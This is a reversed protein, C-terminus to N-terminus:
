QGGGLRALLQSLADRAEEEDADEDDDDDGDDDSNNNNNDGDDDAGFMAYDEDQKVRTNRASPDEGDGYEDGNGDSDVPDASDLEAEDDTDSQFLDDQDSEMEKLQNVIHAFISEKMAGMSQEVALTRKREHDLDAPWDSNDTPPPLDNDDVVGGARPSNAVTASHAQLIATAGASNHSQLMMRLLSEEIALTSLRSIIAQTMRDLVLAEQHLEEQIDLALNQNWQTMNTIPRSLALKRAHNAESLTTSPSSALHFAPTSPPPLTPTPIYPLFTPTPTAATTPTPHPTPSSRSSTTAPRPQTSRSPLMLSSSPHNNKTVKPMIPEIGASPPPSPSPEAEPSSGFLQSEWLKDTDDDDDNGADNDNGDPRHFPEETAIPAPAVSNVLDGIAQPSFQGLGTGLIDIDMHQSPERTSLVPTSTYSSLQSSPLLPSSVSEVILGTQNLGIYVTPITYDKSDPFPWSSDEDDEYEDSENNLDLNPTDPQDSPSSTGEPEDGTRKSSM